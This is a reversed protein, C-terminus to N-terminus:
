GLNRFFAWMDKTAIFAKLNEKLLSPCLTINGITTAKKRMTQERSIHALGEVGSVIM